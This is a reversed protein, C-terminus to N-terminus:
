YVVRLEFGLIQFRSTHQEELFQVRAIYVFGVISEIPCDRQDFAFIGENLQLVIVTQRLDTFLLDLDFLQRFIVSAKQSSLARDRNRFKQPYLNHSEDYLKSIFFTIQSIQLM